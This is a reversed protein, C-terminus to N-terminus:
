GPHMKQPPRTRFDLIIYEEFDMKAYAGQGTFRSSHNELGDGDRLLEVGWKRFPIYFDVKGKAGGFEPFTIFFGNSYKHCYRYFEDQFQAEPPRQINSPGIMRPSSLSRSSFRKIVNIVFTPLDLDTIATPEEARTGLFYEVFLQHLYTTFIYLTDEGDKAAHLWGMKFCVQLTKRDEDTDLMKDM